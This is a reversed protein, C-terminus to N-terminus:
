DSAMVILGGHDGIEYIHSHKAVEFWTLGGDRSLYTNIEDHRSSLYDGVNGTGMILGAANRTSYVPGFNSNSYSNLHLSCDANSCLIKKGKSDLYPAEIPKWIGGKDFTMVSKAFTKM